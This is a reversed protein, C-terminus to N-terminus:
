RGALRKAAAALALENQETQEPDDPVNKASCELSLTGDFGIERLARSFDDWDTIGTYPQWHRDEIGDNDHVHLAQLYQRGAMRVADGANAHEFVMCHGVDLCLKLHESDIERILDLCREPTSLSLARFPMNEFCVVVGHRKAEQALRRLFALNIAYARAPDDERDAGFPMLAHIVFNRAGLLATGYIARAMKEFREARDAETADQPPYRWPGHAQSIEIGSDNFIKREETLRREFEATDCSFLATKTNVLDQYDGCDYGHRKMRAAGERLGYRGTYSTTTIGIKM